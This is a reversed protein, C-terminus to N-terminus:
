LIRTVRFHMIEWSTSLTLNHAFKNNHKRIKRFSISVRHKCHHIHLRNIAAVILQKNICQSTHHHWRRNICQSTRHHHQFSNLKWQQEGTSFSLFIHWLWRSLHIIQIGGIASSSPSSPSLIIWKMWKRQYTPMPLPMIPASPASPLVDGGMTISEITMEGDIYIFRALNLPLRHNFECFHKGNIAVKFSHSQALILMEVFQGRVIPCGGIREETGWYQNKMHNRVIVNDNLRISLHLNIDDSPRLAPGTQVNIQIFRSVTHAIHGRIRIM